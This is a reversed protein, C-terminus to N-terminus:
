FTLDSDIQQQSENGDQSQAQANKVADDALHTGADISADKISEKIGEKIGDKAAEKGAEAFAESASRLASETGRMSQALEEAARAAESMAGEVERMAQAARELLSATEAVKDAGEACSTAAKAAIAAQAAAESGGLTVVSTAAAAAETIIAFEVWSAIIGKIISQAADMLTGSVRLVNAVNDAQGAVSAVGRQFNDIKTRFADAAAGTWSGSTAQANQVVAPGLQRLQGAVNAWDNAKEGLGEPDGTVLNLADKLPTILDLLFDLGAEILTQLPDIGIDDMSAGSAFDGVDKVWGGIDVLDKGASIYNGDQLDSQLADAKGKGDLGVALVDGSTM